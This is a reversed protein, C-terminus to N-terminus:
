WRRCMQATTHTASLTDGEYVHAKKPERLPKTNDDCLVCTIQRQKIQRRLTASRQEPSTFAQYLWTRVHVPPRSGPVSHRYNGLLACLVMQKVMFFPFADAQWQERAIRANSGSLSRTQSRHPRSMEVLKSNIM